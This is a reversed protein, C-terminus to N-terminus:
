AERRRVLSLFTYPHPNKEDADHEERSVEEWEQMSYEPFHTDGDIRADIITLELRDAKPLYQEFLKQGGIVMVEPEDGVAEIAADLDNVVTCGEIELSTDRTVVINHRGPLPRGISEYTNRGMIMPKGMTKSKFHKLDAPLHWPMQNDKGIVRDRAMAVILTIKM